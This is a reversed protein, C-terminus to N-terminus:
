SCAAGGPTERPSHKGFTWKLSLGTATGGPRERLSPVVRAHFARVVAERDARDPLEPFYEEANSPVLLTDLLEDPLIEFDQQHVNGTFHADFIGTLTDARNPAPLIRRGARQDTEPSRAARARAVADRVGPPLQGDVPATLVSHRIARNADHFLYAEPGAPAIDPANWLLTGGPNILGALDAAVRTLARPPILHFVMSALVVDVRDGAMIEAMTRFAGDPGRLEHFRTWPHAGLLREGQDFWATRIDALHLELRMGADSVLRDTRRETLAKLLEIAGLGTGAGYDLVRITQGAGGTAIRREITRLAQAVIWGTPDAAWPRPRRTDGGAFLLEHLGRGDDGSAERGAPCPVAPVHATTREAVPLLRNLSVAVFPRGAPYRHGAYPVTELGAARCCQLWRDHGVPYQHSLAHCTDYAVSQVRGPFRRAVQPAVTHAALVVLGHRRVYPAWRRLHEVLDREVAEDTLPRGDADVYAGDGAGPVGVPAPAGTGRFRRAQDAFARVHLGEDMALGHRALEAAIAAPDDVTGQVLVAPVGDEDLRARAAKLAAPDADIGVMVLPHAALCAGRATRDRIARHIASLRGGDGCGVEAVFRPQEEPCPRNFLDLVVTLLDKDYREHAAEGPM